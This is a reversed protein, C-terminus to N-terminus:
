GATVTQTMDLTYSGAPQSAPITQTLSVGTIYGNWIDASSADATMLTIPTTGTFSTSAGLSVGTSGGTLATLTGTSPDVTLQGASAAGNYPYSDGGSTWVGTGPVTANWALTWGNDAGGPNDVSIRQTGSGFTGSVSQQSNSVTAANMAFAPNNLISGSGDRIDTSLAGATISQTLESSANDAANAIFPAAALVTVSFLAFFGLHMKKNTTIATKTTTTM